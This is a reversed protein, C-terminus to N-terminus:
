SPAHTHTTASHLARARARAALPQHHGSRRRRWQITPHNHHQPTTHLRVEPVHHALHRSLRCRARADHGLQRLRERPHRQHRPPELLADLALLLRDQVRHQAHKECLRRRGHAHDLVALQTRGNTGETALRFALGLGSEHGVTRVRRQSARGAGSARACTVGGEVGLPALCPPRWRECTTSASCPLHYRRWFPM